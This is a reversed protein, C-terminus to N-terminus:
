PNQAESASLPFICISLTLILRPLSVHRRKVSKPFKGAIKMYEEKALRNLDLYHKALASEPVKGILFNVVETPVKNEVLFTSFM